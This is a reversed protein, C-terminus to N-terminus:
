QFVVSLYFQFIYIKIEFLKSLLCFQGNKWKWTQSSKITFGVIYLCRLKTKTNSMFIHFFHSLVDFNGFNKVVARVPWNALSVAFTCSENSHKYYKSFYRPNPHFRNPFVRFFFIYQILQFYINIGKQSSYQSRNM